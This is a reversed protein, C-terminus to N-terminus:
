NAQITYRFKWQPVIFLPFHWNGDAQSLMDFQRRSNLPQQKIDRDFNRASVLLHTHFPFLEFIHGDKFFSDTPQRAWTLLEWCPRSIKNLKNILFFPYRTSRSLVVVVVLIDGSVAVQVLTHWERSQDYWSIIKRKVKTTDDVSLIQTGSRCIKDIIDFVKLKEEFDAGLLWM